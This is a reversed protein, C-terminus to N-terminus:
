EAWSRRKAVVAFSPVDDDRFCIYEDKYHNFTQAAKLENFYDRATQARAGLSFGACLVTLKLIHRPKM